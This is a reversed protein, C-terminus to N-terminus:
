FKKEPIYFSFCDATHGPTDITEVSLGNDPELVDGNRVTRDIEFPEFVCARDFHDGCEIVVQESSLSLNRILEVVHPRKLIDKAKESAVVEMSPFATKFPGIAGCHDFHSHTLCCYAPQRKGLIEKIEKIYSKSLNALGGDFLVPSKGDLLYVPFMHSGIMYLDETIPGPKEIRM